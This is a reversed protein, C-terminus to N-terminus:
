KFDECELFVDLQQLLFPLALIEGAYLVVSSKNSELLHVVHM